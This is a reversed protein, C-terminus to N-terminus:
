RVVCRFFLFLGVVTMSGLFVRTLMEQEQHVAAFAGAQARKDLVHNATKDQTYFRDPFLAPASMDYAQHFPSSSTLAFDSASGVPRNTAYMSVSSGLSTM